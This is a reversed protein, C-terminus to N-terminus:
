KKNLVPLANNSWIVNNTNYIFLTRKIMELEETVAGLRFKLLINEKELLFLKLATQLVIIFTNLILICLFIIRNHM